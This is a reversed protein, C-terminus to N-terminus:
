MVAHFLDLVMVIVSCAVLSTSGARCIDRDFVIDSSQGSVCVGV